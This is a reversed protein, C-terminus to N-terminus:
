GVPITSTPVAAQTYYGGGSKGEQAIYRVDKHPIFLGLPVIDTSRAFVHECLDTDPTAFSGRRRRYGNEELVAIADNLARDTDILDTEVRITLYTKTVTYVGGTVADPHDPDCEVHFSGLIPYAPNDINQSAGTEANELNTLQVHLSHVEYRDVGSGRLSTKIKTGTVEYPMFYGPTVERYYTNGKEISDNDESTFPRLTKTIM